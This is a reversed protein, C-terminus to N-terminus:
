IIELAAELSGASKLAQLVAILDSPTIELANLATVLDQLTSNSKLAVLHGKEEQIDITSNGVGVTEAGEPALPNAQSVSNETSITVTIGGHAVAAPLLRVHQGIVVTGTRENVVVKAVEQTTNVLLNEMKSLFAVRNESWGNTLQVRITSGDMAAAPTLKSIAEAVRNALTFDTRDIIVDLGSADGISTMIEREIIAGNPVRGTTTIATRKESGNASVSTGGTSVPGQAVAVIEGNPAQLQTAILVGGELSNADALSSVTVDLRDGPKAFPPITATVIVAATNTGRIDNISSLRGGMNTILNLQASQTSRSRDGSKNLGVVLGYGVVQNDRVDKVRAIDKLRLQAAEAQSSTPLLSLCLGLSLIALSLRRFM